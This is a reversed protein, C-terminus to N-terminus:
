REPKTLRNLSRVNLRDLTDAARGLTRVSTTEKHMLDTLGAATRRVEQRDEVTLAESECLEALTARLQRVHALWEPRSNTAGLALRATACATALGRVDGGTKSRAVAADVKREASEARREASAARREALWAILLGTVSAVSGAAGLGEWFNEPGSM